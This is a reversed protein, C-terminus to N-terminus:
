YHGHGPAPPNSDKESKSFTIPGILHSPYFKGEPAYGDRAIRKAFNIAQAANDFFEYATPLSDKTFRIEMKVSV